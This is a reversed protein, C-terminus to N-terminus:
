RWLQGLGLVTRYSEPPPRAAAFGDALSELRDELARIPPGARVGAREFDGVIARLAEDTLPYNEAGLAEALRWGGVDRKVAVLAATETEVIYLALEDAGVEWLYGAACNRFRLAAADLAARSAIRRYPKAMDPAPTMQGFRDPKLAEIANRLLAEPGAARSWALVMDREDRRPNIWRAATYAEALARAAEATTVNTVIRAVRLRAPLMGIRTLLAPDIAETHRLVLNANTEGLLALLREYDLRTWLAEGMHALARALGRPAPRVALAIVDRLPTREAANRLAPWQEVGLRALGIAVLHRRAAPLTLFEAHPQPWLRAIAGAHEGALHTLLPTPTVDPATDFVGARAAVFDFVSM